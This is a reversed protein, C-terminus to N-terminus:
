VFEVLEMVSQKDMINDWQLVTKVFSDPVDTLDYEKKIHEMVRNNPSHYVLSQITSALNAKENSAALLIAESSINMNDIIKKALGIRSLLGIKKGNPALEHNIVKELIDSPTNKSSLLSALYESSPKGSFSKYEGGSFFIRRIEEATAGKDIVKKKATDISVPDTLANNEILYLFSQVDVPYEYIFSNIYTPNSIFTKTKSTVLRYFLNSDANRHEAVLVAERIDTSDVFMELFRKPLMPNALLKNRNELDHKIIYEILTPNIDKRSLDIRHAYTKSTLVKIYGKSLNPLSAVKTVFNVLIKKQQIGQPELKRTSFSQWISAFEDAFADNENPKLLAWNTYKEMRNYLGLEFSDM